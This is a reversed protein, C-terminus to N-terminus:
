FHCSAWRPVSRMATRIEHDWHKFDPEHSAVFRWYADSHNMHVTHCLEHILLYRVVEHRLFLLKANLSITKKRSCSGWRSKQMRVTVKNFPLGAAEAVQHLWPVLSDRGRRRLWRRLIQKCLFESAVNGLLTLCGTGTQRLAVTKSDQPVYSIQWLENIAPLIIQSPCTEIPEPPFDIRIRAFRRETSEIWSRKRELLQPIKRLDYGRPVVVQLGDHVSIRLCVNKARLSIRIRHPILDSM